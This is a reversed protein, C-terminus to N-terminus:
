AKKVEGHYLWGSWPRTWRAIEQPATQLGYNKRACRKWGSSTSLKFNSHTLNPQNKLIQASISRCPHHPPHVKVDRLLLLSVCEKYEYSGAGPVNMKTNETQVKARMSYPSSLCIISQPQLAFSQSSTLSVEMSTREESPESSVRLQRPCHEQLRQEASTRWRIACWVFFPIFKERWFVTWAHKGRGAKGISFAPEAKDKGNM